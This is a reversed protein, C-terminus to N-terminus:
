RMWLEISVNNHKGVEHRSSTYITQAVRLPSTSNLIPCAPIPMQGLANTM